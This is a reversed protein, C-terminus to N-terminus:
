QNGYRCLAALPPMLELLCPDLCEPTANRWRTYDRRWMGPMQAPYELLIFRTFVTRRPHRAALEAVVPLVRKM